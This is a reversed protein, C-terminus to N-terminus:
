YSIMQYDAPIEFLSPDVKDSTKIVKMISEEGAFEGILYALQDGDFCLISTADEMHWEETDYTKGDIKRTGTIMSAPDVDGEEIMTDMIEQQSKQLSIKVVTKSAHDISYLFEGDMISIGASQGDMSSESYTKDGSTATIITMAAGDYVMEYEMYMARDSFQSYFRGTKTKLWASMEGAAVPEEQRGASSEPAAPAAAETSIDLVAAPAATSVEQAQTPEPSDSVAPATPSGCASLSSVLLVTLLAAMMKKM